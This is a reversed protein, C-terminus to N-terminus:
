EDLRYTLSNEQESIFIVIQKIYV